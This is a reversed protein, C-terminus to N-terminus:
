MFETICCSYIVGPILSTLFSVKVHNQLTDFKGLDVSIGLSTKGQYLCSLSESCQLSVLFVVPGSICICLFSTKEPKCNCWPLLINPDGAEELIQFFIFFYTTEKILIQNRLNNTSMLRMLYLLHVPPIWNIWIGPDQSQHLSKRGGSNPIWKIWVGPGWWLLIIQM